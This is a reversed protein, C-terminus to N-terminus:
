DNIEECLFRKEQITLYTTGWMHRQNGCCEKSCPHPTRVVMGLFRQKTYHMHDAIDTYNGWYHKRKEKLRAVQFRRYGRDFKMEIIMVSAM